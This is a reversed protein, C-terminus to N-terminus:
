AAGAEARNTPEGAVCIRDLYIGDESKVSDTTLHFRLEVTKGDYASLDVRESKWNSYSTYDQLSKWKDSGVERIEVNVNDSMPELRHRADFTLENKSGELRFPKTTLSSNERNTYNGSPSDTWVKGRGPVDVQGWKGDGVWELPAVWAAPVEVSVATAASPTTWQDVQVLDLNLKRAVPSPYLPIQAQMEGAKSPVRFSRERGDADTWRLESFLKVPGGDPSTWNLQAQNFRASSGTSKASEPIQTSEGTARAANLRGGTLVKGNFAPLVDVTNLLRDKIQAPTAEPHLTAIIGAVGAVHPTAMSTGSKIEYGGGPVTSVIKSGPAALDVTKAGYNSFGSMRDNSDSSAVSIINALEYSAPYSGYDESPYYQGVDNDKTENGAACIHLLPSAQFVEFEAQSYPGTYSNSTIQAGNNTAYIVARVTDAVSGEGKVMMKVPMLQADWNVGMVGQGNNGKAGITGACHTGHGYDDYPDGTQESANYGHIDDIVGNGDDDIGNAPIEKTNTWLNDRLDPHTLECGTDLVAIIPGQHSGQTREWVQPMGIKEMGWLEGAMPDDSTKCAFRKENPSVFALRSDHELVAMGQATTVGEPLKLRLLKGGFQEQMQAPMEFRELAEVGKLSRSSLFRDIDQNPKLKVLLEGEVHAPLRRELEQAEAKFRNV